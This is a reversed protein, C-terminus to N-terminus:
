LTVELYGRRAEVTSLAPAGTPAGEDRRRQWWDDWVGRGRFYEADTANLLRHRFVSAVPRYRLELTSLGFKALVEDRDFADTLWRAGPKGKLTGRASDNLCVTLDINEPDVKASM